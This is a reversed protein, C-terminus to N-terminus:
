NDLPAKLSEWGLGRFCPGTAAESFKIDSHGTNWEMLKVEGFKDIAVDWGIVLIQPIRDHLAACISVAESFQPIERGAFEFGTGPHSRCREWSPFAAHAGLAGNDDIIPIRLSSKVTVLKDGQLGVRLYAARKEAPRGGFKVTTIRLTATSDPTIQNFFESQHVPAQVVFNGLKSLTDPNFDNRTIRQVGLGCTSRDLKVFVADDDAFIVNKVSDARIAAGERDSWTGNVHYALDPFRDTALLRRALTKAGLGAYTGKSLPVIIRGFFNDPIWGELFKGRYAAYTKLWPEFRQSGLVSRSYEKILTRTKANPRSEPFQSVIMRYAKSAKREHWRDFQHNKLARKLQKQIQKLM